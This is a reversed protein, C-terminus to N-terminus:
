EVPKGDFNKYKPATKKDGKEDEPRGMDNKKNEKNFAKKNLKRDTLILVGQIIFKCDTLYSSEFLIKQM